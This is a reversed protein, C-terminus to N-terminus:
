LLPNEVRVGDLVQGHQLDESLLTRCGATAACRVILADWFSIANLRHLDIAGLIREVDISVVELTALLEVNRRADAAGVQLKRTAVVFYEQLVQTSLVGLGTTLARHLISQARAQKDGADGDAAYLLINTDLFFRESM